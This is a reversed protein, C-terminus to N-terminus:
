CALLFFSLALALRRGVLKLSKGAVYCAVIYTCAQVGMLLGVWEQRIGKAEAEIPLFPAFIATEM